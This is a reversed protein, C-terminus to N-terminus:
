NPTLYRYVQGRKVFWGYNPVHIIPGPNCKASYLALDNEIMIAKVDGSITRKQNYKSYWHDIDWVPALIADLKCDMNVHKMLEDMTNWDKLIAEVPIGSELLLDVSWRNDNTLFEKENQISVADWILNMKMHRFEERTLLESNGWSDYRLDLTEVPVKVITSNPALLRINPNDTEVFIVHNFSLTTKFALLDKCQITDKVYFSFM